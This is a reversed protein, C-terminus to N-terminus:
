LCIICFSYHFYIGPARSSWILFGDFRCGKGCCKDLEKQSHCLRMGKLLCHHNAVDWTVATADGRCVGNSMKRSCLSGDLSCCVIKAVELGADFYGPLDNLDTKNNMSCGNFAYRKFGLLNSFNLNLSGLM